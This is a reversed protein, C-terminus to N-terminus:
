GNLWLVNWDYGRFMGDRRDTAALRDWDSKRRALEEVSGLVSLDIPDSSLAPNDQADM